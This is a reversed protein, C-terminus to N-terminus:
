SSLFESIVLMQRMNRFPYNQTIISSYGCIELWAANGISRIVHADGGSCFVRVHEFSELSAIRPLLRKYNTSIADLEASDCLLNRLWSYAEFDRIAQIDQYLKTFYYTIILSQINRLSLAVWSRRVERSGPSVTQILTHDVVARGVEKGRGRNSGQGQRARDKYRDGTKSMKCNRSGRVYLNNSM